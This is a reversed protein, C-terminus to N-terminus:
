GRHAVLEASMRDLACSFVLRHGSYDEDEARGAVEGPAFQHGGIIREDAFLAEGGIDADDADGVVVEAFLFETVVHFVADLAKGRMAEILIEPLFEAFM